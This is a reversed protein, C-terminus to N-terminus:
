HWHFAVSESILIFHYIGNIVINFFYRQIRMYLIGAIESTHESLLTVKYQIIFFVLWLCRIQGWIWTCFHSVLNKMYKRGKSYYLTHVHTHTISLTITITINFNTWLHYFISFLDSLFLFPFPIDLTWTKSIIESISLINPM